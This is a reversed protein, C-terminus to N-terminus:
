LDWFFLSIKFIFHSIKLSSIISLLLICLMVLLIMIENCRNELIMM